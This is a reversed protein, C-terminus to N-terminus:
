RVCTECMRGFSGYSVYNPAIDPHNWELGDDLITVVVGKGTYGAEWAEQTGLTVTSEAHRRTREFMEDIDERSTSSIKEISLRLSIM